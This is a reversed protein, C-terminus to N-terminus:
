DDIAKLLEEQEIASTGVQGVVIGAARNALWAAEAYSLGAALGLTLTSIVTDGAGTVDYVQKATTPIHERGESTFLSMGLEGQTILIAQCALSGLLIQGAKQIYDDDDLSVGAAAAAEFHNPTIISAGKFLPVNEVKPDVAIIKNKANIVAGVTQPNVIGKAYDSIIVADVQPLKQEIYAQVAHVARASLPGRKEYDVRVVQQNHAVVRTKLTSPRNDSRVLGSLDDGLEQLLSAIQRGAEDNGVVACLNTLAGLSNLNRSVNGAGGLMETEKVVEVVPVPAEPSIRKVKGWVFRDLMVDGVVLVKLRSFKAVAQKIKKLDRKM